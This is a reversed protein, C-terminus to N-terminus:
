PKRNDNTLRLFPRGRALTKAGIGKVGILDTPTEFVRANPPLLPRRQDRFAVIRKALSPGIGPLQALEPWEATNPDVGTKIRRAEPGGAVGAGLRCPYGMAAALCGVLLGAALIFAAAQQRLPPLDGGRGIPGDAGRGRAAAGDAGGGAAQKESAQSVVANYRSYAGV